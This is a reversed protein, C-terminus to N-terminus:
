AQLLNAQHFIQLGSQLVQQMKALGSTAMEAFVAFNRWPTSRAAHIGDNCRQLPWM